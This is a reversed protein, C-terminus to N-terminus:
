TNEHYMTLRSWKAVYQVQYLQAKCPSLFKENMKEERKNVLTSSPTEGNLDFNKFLLRAANHRKDSTRNTRQPASSPIETRQSGSTTVSLEGNITRLENLFSSLKYNDCLSFRLNKRKKCFKGVFVTQTLLFVIKAKIFLSKEVPFTNGVSGFV